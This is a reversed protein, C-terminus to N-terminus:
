EVESSFRLYNIQLIQLIIETTRYSVAIVTGYRKAALTSKQLIDPFIFPAQTPKFEPDKTGIALVRM